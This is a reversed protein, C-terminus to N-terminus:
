LRDWVGENETCDSLSSGAVLITLLFPSYSPPFTPTNEDQKLLTPHSMSIFSLTEKLLFWQAYGTVLEKINTSESLCASIGSFM